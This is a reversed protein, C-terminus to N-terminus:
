VNWFVRTLALFLRHRAITMLASASLSKLQYLNRFGNECLLLRVRNYAIYMLLSVNKARLTFHIKLLLMHYNARYKLGFPTGRITQSKAFCNLAVHSHFVPCVEWQLQFNPQYLSVCFIDIKTCLYNKKKATDESQVYECLHKNCYRSIM